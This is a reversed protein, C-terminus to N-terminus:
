CRSGGGGGFRHWVEGGEEVVDEGIRAVGSRDQLPEGVPLPPPDQPPVLHGPRDQGLVKGLKACGTSDSSSCSTSSGAVRGNDLLIFGIASCGFRFM